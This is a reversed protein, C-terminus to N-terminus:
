IQNMLKSQCMFWMASEDEQPLAFLGCHGWVTLWQSCQPESNLLHGLHLINVCGGVALYLAYWGIFFIHALFVLLVVVIM